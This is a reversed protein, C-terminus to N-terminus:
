AGLRAWLEEHLERLSPLVVDALSFRPDARFTPHPIAVCSMRAAKAAIVGNLSDEVAVCTVAPCGLRAATTLYVGPHPKGLPEDQASHVTSFARSLGVRELVAAIVRHPSSSALALKWGRRMVSEVAAGVGETGEGRTRILECVRDLIRAEVERLSPAEWPHRRHWHQVVEDIRLGMTQVCDAHQLPVGVSRFVEVEADQWLPESDILVGDMDFIVAQIMAARLLVAPPPADHYLRPTSTRMM